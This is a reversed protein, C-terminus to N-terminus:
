HTISLEDGTAVGQSVLVARMKDQQKRLVLWEEEHRSVTRSLSDLSTVVSDQGQRLAKVDNKIPEVELAVVKQIKQLDSNTLSM